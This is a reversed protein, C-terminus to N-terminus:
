AVVGPHDVIFQALGRESTVAHTGDSFLVLCNDYTETLYPGFGRHREGDSEIYDVEDNTRIDHLSFPWPDFQIASVIQPPTERVINELLNKM